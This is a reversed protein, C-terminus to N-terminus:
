RSRAFLNSLEELDDGLAERWIGSLSNVRPVQVAGRVEWEASDRLTRASGPLPGRGFADYRQYTGQVVGRQIITPHTVALSACRNVAGGDQAHALVVFNDEDGIALHGHAVLHHFVGCALGAAEEVVFDDGTKSTRGGVGDGEELTEFALELFMGAIQLFRGDFKGLLPALIARQPMELRQEDDRIRFGSKKKGAVAVDDLRIIPQAGDAGASAKSQGRSAGQDLM